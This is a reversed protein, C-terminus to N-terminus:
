ARKLHVNLTDRLLRPLSPIKRKELLCPDRFIQSHSSYRLSWQQRTAVKPMVRVTEGFSKCNMKFTQFPPNLQFTEPVLIIKPFRMNDSLFQLWSRPLTSIRQLRPNPRGIETRRYNWATSADVTAAFISPSNSELM